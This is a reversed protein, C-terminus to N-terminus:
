LEKSYKEVVRDHLADGHHNGGLRKYTDYEIEFLEYEDFTIIHGPELLSICMDKFQRGQISLLGATMNEQGETLRMITKEIRSDAAQSEVRVEKIQSDLDQIAQAEAKAQLGTEIYEKLEAKTANCRADFDRNFKDKLAKISFRAWIGLGLAILGCVWEVWYKAIIQGVDM